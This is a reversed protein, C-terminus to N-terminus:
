SGLFVYTFSYGILKEHTNTNITPEMNAKFELTHSGSSLSLLMSTTFTSDAMLDFDQDGAANYGMSSEIAMIPLQQVGDLYVAYYVVADAFANANIPSSTRRVTLLVLANITRAPNLSFTAGPITTPTTATIITGPSANISNNSFNATSILGGSDIITTGSTNKINISGNNVTLGSSNLTVVAAGSTNNVTIGTNDAQVITSGSANEVKLIGDGNATGGLQITGGTGANFSFNKIKNLTIANRKYTQMVEIGSVLSETGGVPASNPQLYKNLSTDKPEIM